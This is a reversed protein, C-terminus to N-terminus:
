LGAFGFKIRGMESNSLVRGLDYRWQSRVIWTAPTLIIVPNHTDVEDIIDKIILAVSLTKGVGGEDGIILRTRPHRDGLLPKLWPEKLYDLAILQHLDPKGAGRGSLTTDELSSWRPRSRVLSGAAALVTTSSGNREVRPSV